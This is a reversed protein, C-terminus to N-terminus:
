IGLMRFFTLYVEIDGYSLFAGFFHTCDVYDSLPPKRLEQCKLAAGLFSQKLASLNPASSAPHEPRENNPTAAGTTASATLALALLLAAAATLRRLSRYASMRRMRSQPRRSEPERSHGRSPRAGTGRRSMTGLRGGRTRRSRRIPCCTPRISGARTLASFRCREVSKTM